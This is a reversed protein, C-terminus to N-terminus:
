VSALERAASREVAVAGIANELLLASSKRDGCRDALARAVIVPRHSRAFGFREVLRRAHAVAGRQMTGFM